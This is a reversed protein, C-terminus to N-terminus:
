CPKWASAWVVAQDKWMLFIGADPCASMTWGDKYRRLLAGVDECVENSFVVGSFGAAQLRRSWQTQTERRETSESLPCAVLDVVARGASRELVLRENSIKPFCEDLCEFYLRFWRLCEEFGKVFEYGDVGVDLDAEEEVVTVIRPQLRSLMSIFFDRRNIQVSRFSGVCNIVLAEDQQVDLIASNLESLDGIHHIVNFKFPIGMIRAFKDMRYGIERMVKQLTEASGRVVSTLRLHTTEYSRTALLELLTPWQTCYTNSFDIIHLKSKGEFAEMIAGNCATHGFTTWPSVEQFKLLTKRTSEFSLNRESASNLNYYSKYGTSTMRNFLAQLFYYALKQKTDGYQSGLENLMWILEQLRASNNESIARAAELLIDSSWNESVLHNFDINLHSAPNINDLQNTSSSSDFLGHQYDPLTATPLIHNYNKDPSSSSFDDQEMLSSFCEEEQQYQYNNHLCQLLNYSNSTINSSKNSNLSSEQHDSPQLIPITFLTDM